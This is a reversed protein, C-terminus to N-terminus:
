FYRQKKQKIVVTLGIISLGIAGMMYSNFGAIKRKKTSTTSLQSPQTNESGSELKKVISITQSANNGVVDWVYLRIHYETAGSVNLNYIITGGTWYSSNMLTNNVYITYNWPHADSVEWTIQYETTEIPIELDEQDQITPAETDDNTPIYNLAKIADIRVSEENDIRIQLYRVQSLGTGSLDFTQNGQGNGITIFEDSLVNAGSLVYEGGYGIIQIDDGSFDHIEEGAGMDVTLYGVGYDLYIVAHNNDPAGLINEEFSSWATEEPIHSDVYPDTYALSLNVWISSTNIHSTNDWIELTVNYRELQWQEKQWNELQYHIEKGMVQGASLEESNRLLRWQEGFNTTWGLTTDEGWTLTYEEQDPIINYNIPDQITILCDEQSILGIRDEINVSINYAYSSLLPLTWNYTFNRQSISSHNTLSGNLYLKLTGPTQDFMKWQLVPRSGFHYAANEPSAYIVPATPPLITFNHHYEYRQNLSSHYFSLNLSHNGATLAAISLNFSEGNWIFNM